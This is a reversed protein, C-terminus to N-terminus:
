WLCPYFAISINSKETFVYRNEPPIGRPIKEGFVSNSGVPNETSGGM